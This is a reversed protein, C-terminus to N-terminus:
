RAEAGAGQLHGLPREKEAIARDLRQVLGEAEDSFKRAFLVEGTGYIDDLVVAPSATLFDVQGEDLLAPNAGGGSWDAYTLNRRVRSKFPSNAIITQFFSEDPCVTHRFFRVVGTERAAFDRIYECAERSLAWWTSGGHPELGQLSSEWARQGSLVGARVLTAHTKRVLKRPLSSGASPKYTSLRSLPKGAAECPMRVINIFERGRHRSFFDEIYRAGHLPYDTGSLLVLVEFGRPDALGARMLLLIAEVQSFDGWYVPIRETTFHIDAGRLGAFDHWRSKRDIHVFFAASESRLADVLRQLHRPNNHALVLYAIKVTLWPAFLGATKRM